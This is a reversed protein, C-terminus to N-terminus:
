LWLIVHIGTGRKAWILHGKLRQQIAYRTNEQDFESCLTDIWFVFTLCHFLSAADSTHQKGWTTDLTVGRHVQVRYKFSQLM